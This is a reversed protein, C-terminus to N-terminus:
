VSLPIREYTKSSIHQLTSHFYELLLLTELYLFDHHPNFLLNRKQNANWNQKFKSQNTTIWKGYYGMFPNKPLSIFVLQSKKYSPRRRNTNRLFQLYESHFNIRQFESPFLKKRKKIKLWGGKGNFKGYWLRGGEKELVM